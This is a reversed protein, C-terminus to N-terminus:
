SEAPQQQRYAQWWQWQGISAMVLFCSYLLATPYLGKQWYVWIAVIDVAIWFAWNALRKHSMLLQAVLSACTTFADYYPLSADTQSSLGYGVLVTSIIVVAISALYSLNSGRHVRVQAHSDLDGRWMWYGYIQFGIYVVHLAMDAYLKVQFFIFSYLTVQILGFFFCWISRRIILYVCLFGSVTAVWEIASAGAFGELWQQWNTEDM